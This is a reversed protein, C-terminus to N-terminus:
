LRSMCAMYLLKVTSIEYSATDFAKRFELCVIDTARGEDVLGNTLTTLCSKMKNLGNTSNRNIKNDKSPRSIRELTICVQVEKPGQTNCKCSEPIVAVKRHDETVEGLLWLCDFTVLFSRGIIDALEKLM